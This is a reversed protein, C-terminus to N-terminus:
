KWRFFFDGCGLSSFFFCAGFFQGVVVWHDLESLINSSNLSLDSSLANKVFAFIYDDSIDFYELKALVAM